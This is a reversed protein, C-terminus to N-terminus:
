SILIQVDHLINSKQKKFPRIFISSNGEIDMFAVFILSSHDKKIIHNSIYNDIDKVKYKNKIQNLFEEKSLTKGDMIINKPNDKLVVQFSKKSEIFNRGEHSYIYVSVNCAIKDTVNKIRIIPKNKLHDMCDNIYKDIDKYEEGELINPDQMIEKKLKNYLEANKIDIELLGFILYPTISNKKQLLSSNTQKESEIRLKRTEICYWLGVGALTFQILPNAIEFLLKISDPM